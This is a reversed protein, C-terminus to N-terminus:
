ATRPSHRTLSAYVRVTVEPLYTFTLGAKVWATFLACDEGCRRSPWNAARLCEARHLVMPTGIHGFKVAGSGVVDRQGNDFVREMRSFVFDSGSRELLTALKAVHDPLFEDDDDLYGFLQGRALLTGAVRAPSGNCEGRLFQRWNRGLHAVRVPVPGAELDPLPIEPGDQVIIHELNPYTQAQVSRVCRTLLASRRAPITPTIISVLPREPM